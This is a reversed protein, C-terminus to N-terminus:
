AVGKVTYGIKHAAKLFADIRESTWQSTCALKKGDKTVLIQEPKMFFRDRDSSLTKANSLEQTVGYRQVISDDFSEKVQKLTPKKDRFFARLVALATQGKPMPESREFVYKTTDRGRKELKKPKAKEENQNSPQKVTAAAEAKEKKQDSAPASKTATQKEALRVIKGGPSRESVISNEEELLKAAWQLRILSIKTKAAADTLTTQKVQQLYKLLNSKLEENTM